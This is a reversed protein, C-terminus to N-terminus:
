KIWEEIEKQTLTNYDAKAEVWGDNVWIILPFIGGTYQMFSDGNLRTHPINQAKTKQWFETLDSKTGGIVLFFPLAPNHEKMLHMKYAAIKCHGCGPSVFAIIHKGQSLDTEHIDTTKPDPFKSLVTDKKMERYVDSLDIKYRDTRLWTPQGAPIPFLILPLVMGAPLLVIATISAWRAPIGYHYRILIGIVLLLLSNKILSASPSMWIADGFCGCNINNGAIAWLAILYISFLVTLGFSVKLVWKNRGFLHLIILSGLGGELGILLRAAIAALLWPLHLYEVITYEFHQIPYTKTYSSYLFLAGTLLSLFAFLLRFFIKM